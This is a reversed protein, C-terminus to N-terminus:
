ATREEKWRRFLEDCYEVKEASLTKVRRGDAMVAFACFQAVVPKGNPGTCEPVAKQNVVIWVSRDPNSRQWAACRGNLDLDVQIGSPQLEIRNVRAAAGRKGGAAPASDAKSTGASPRVFQWPTCTERSLRGRTM